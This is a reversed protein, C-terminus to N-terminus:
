FVAGRPLYSNCIAIWDGGRREYSVYIEGSVRAYVCTQVEGQFQQTWSFEPLGYHGDFTHLPQGYSAAVADMNMGVLANEAPQIEACGVYAAVVIALAM